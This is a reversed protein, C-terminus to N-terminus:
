LTQSDLLVPGNGQVLLIQMNKNIKHKITHSCIDLPLISAQSIKSLLLLKTNKIELEKKNDWPFSKYINYPMFNGNSDADIEYAIKSNSSSTDLNAVIVSVISNFKLLKINVM